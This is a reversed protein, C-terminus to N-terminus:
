MRRKCQCNKARCGSHVHWTPLHRCDPCRTKDEQAKRELFQAALEEPTQESEPRHLKVEM